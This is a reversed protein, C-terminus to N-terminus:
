QADIFPRWYLDRVERLKGLTEQTIELTIAKKEFTTRLTRDTIDNILIPGPVAYDGVM